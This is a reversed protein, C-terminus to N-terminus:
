CDHQLVDDIDWSELQEAYMGGRTSFETVRVLTKLILAARWQSTYYEAGKRRVVPSIKFVNQMEVSQTIRPM